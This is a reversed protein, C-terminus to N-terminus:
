RPSRWFGISEYLVGIKFKIYCYLLSSLERLRWFPLIFNEKVPGHARERILKINLPIPTLKNINCVYKVLMEGNIFRHQKSFQNISDLRTLLTKAVSSKSFILRDSYGNHWHWMTTIFNNSNLNISYKFFDANKKLITDDRIALCYDYQLIGNSSIKLMALQSILNKYTRYNDNHLDIMSSFFNESTGKLLENSNTRVIKNSNFIGDHPSHEVFREGTRPNSVEGIDNFIYITKIRNFHKNALPFLNKKFNNEVKTNARGIGYIIIILSKNKM